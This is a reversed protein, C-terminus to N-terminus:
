LWSFEVLSNTEQRPAHPPRVLLANSEALVTLLSSDQRDCPTCIWGEAGATVQARMYHSRPGNSGVPAGLRASFRPPLGVPLGLMAEVAPRLFLLGCIMASVPNGPLGVLPTGNLRGAMLPKGPRMAIKYFDLELGLGLATKQVLDFDGVSAGGLTVILDAGRALDFAATLSEASDRAIPLLRAEAGAAELMAKLGFSNSCLIQDPGPEEGPIVLEDGTPILAVLPRRTVAVQGANMAAMLAMEAPGIRRPASIRAGATFDGGAPRINAGTDSTGLITVWDEIREAHEQILVKDAGEPLPAGTFIRAAQGPLLAGELRLGALASGIVTLRAGQHFDQATIAYGDMASAAFPPQDRTAVVDRALVRGAAQALPIIEPTLPAFLRTLRAHAEEVSILEDSM